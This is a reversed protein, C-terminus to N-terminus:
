DEENIKAYDPLAIGGSELYRKLDIETFDDDLKLVGNSEPGLNQWFGKTSNKIMGLFKLIKEGRTVNGELYHNNMLYKTYMTMEAYTLDEKNKHKKAIEMITTEYAQRNAIGADTKLKIKEKLNNAKFNPDYGSEVFAKRIKDQEYQAVKFPSMGNVAGVEDPSKPALTLLNGNESHLPIVEGENTVYSIQYIPNKAGATSITHVKINKGVKLQSDKYISLDGTTFEQSTRVKTDIIPILYDVNNTVETIKRNQNQINDPLITMLSSTRPVDDAVIKYKTIGYSQTIPHLVIAKNANLTFSEVTYDDSGYLGTGGGNQAYFKIKNRILDKAHDPDDGFEMNAIQLSIIEYIENKLGFGSVTDDNFFGIKGGLKNVESAINNRLWPEDLGIDKIANPNKKGAQVLKWADDPTINGFERTRELLLYENIASDKLGLKYIIPNETVDGNQNIVYTDKLYESFGSNLLNNYADFSKGVLNFNIKVDDPLMELNHLMYNKITANDANPYIDLYHNLAIKKQSDSLQSLDNKSGSKVLDKINKSAELSNIDSTLKSIRINKNDLFTQDIGSKYFDEKNISGQKGNKLDFTATNISSEELLIQLTQLNEVTPKISSTLHHYYKEKKITAKFATLDAEQIFGSQIGLNYDEIVNNLSQDDYAGDAIKNLEINGSNTLEAVYSALDADYQKNKHIEDIDAGFSMLLNDSYDTVAQQINTPVNENIANFMPVALSEFDQATGNNRKVDSYIKKAELELTSFVEKTYRKVMITDFAEIQSATRLGKPATIPEVIDIETEIGNADTVTRTGRKMNYTQAATTGTKKGIQQGVNLLKSSLANGIVDFNNAERNSAEALSGFGSGSNVGIKDQYSIIKKEKELAM